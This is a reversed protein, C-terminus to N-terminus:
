DYMNGKTFVTSLEQSTGTITRYQSRPFIRNAFDRVEQPFMVDHEARLFQVWVGVNSTDSEELVSPYAAWIRKAFLPSNSIVGLRFVGWGGFSSALSDLARTNTV